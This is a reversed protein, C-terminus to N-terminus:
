DCNRKPRCKRAIQVRPHCKRRDLLSQPGYITHLFHLPLHRRFPVSHRGKLMVKVHGVRARLRRSQRDRVRIESLRFHFIRDCVGNRSSLEHAGDVVQQERPRTSLSPSNTSSLTSKFAPSADEKSAAKHDRSGNKTSRHQWSLSSVPLQLAEPHVSSSRLSREM